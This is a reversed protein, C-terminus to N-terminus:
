DVKKKSRSTTKQNTEWVEMIQPIASYIDFTNFQDLWDIMNEPVSDKDAHRAMLYALRTFLETSGNGKEVNAIEVLMDSGFEQRYLYPIAATARLKIERDGIMITKEM